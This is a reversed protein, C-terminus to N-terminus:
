NNSAIWTSYSNFAHESQRVLWINSGVGRCWWIYCILCTDYTLLSYFHGMRYRYLCIRWENVYILFLLLRLASRGQPIGGLVLGWGFYIHNCKVWWVRDSLYSSLWQIEISCIGLQHLRLLAHDHSDFTKRMNLFAASVVKGWCSENSLLDLAHYKWCPKINSPLPM